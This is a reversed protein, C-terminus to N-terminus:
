GKKKQKPAAATTASASVPPSPKAGTSREHHQTIAEIMDAKRVKKLTLGISACFEKLEVATYLLDLEKPTVSADTLSRRRAHLISKPLIQPRTQMIEDINDDNIVLDDSKDDETRSKKQAPQEELELDVDTPNQRKTTEALWDNVTGLVERERPFVISIVFEAVATVEKALSEELLRPSVGLSVLLSVQRDRPLKMVWQDLGDILFQTAVADDAPRQAARCMQLAIIPIDDFADDFQSRTRAATVATCFTSKANLLAETSDRQDREALRELVNARLAQVANDLVDKTSESYQKGYLSFFSVLREFPHRWDM